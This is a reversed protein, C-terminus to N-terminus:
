NGVHYRDSLSRGGNSIFCIGGRNRSLFCRYTVHTNNRRSSDIASYAPRRVPAVVIAGLSGPTRFASFSSIVRHLGFVVNSIPLRSVEHTTSTLAVGRKTHGGVVALTFNHRRTTSTVNSVVSITNNSLRFLIINVYKCHNLGLSHTTFGAQFKLTRVTSRIGSHASRQIDSPRGVIHSIAGLSINTTVTISGVSIGGGSVATITRKAPGTSDTGRAETCIM